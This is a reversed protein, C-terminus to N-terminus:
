NSTSEIASSTQGSFANVLEQLQEVTLTACLTDVDEAEFPLDTQQSDGSNESSQQRVGAQECYARFLLRLKRRQEKALRNAIATSNTNSNTENDNEDDSEETAIVRVPRVTQARALLSDQEVQESLSLFCRM